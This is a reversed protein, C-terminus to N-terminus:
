GSRTWKALAGLAGQSVAVGILIIALAAPAEAPLTEGLFVVGFVMGWVPVQYNVLVFFTPGRRRIVTLLLFMALATPVVGLWIVALAARWTWPASLPAEFMLAIPTLLTAACILALAGFTLPHAAPARKALVSGSAYCAAAGLCALQALLAFGGAGLGELVDLGILLAVGFLGILFGAAKVGSLRESAVFRAAIPLTILPTTAMFIAALSSDIHGKQAWSLLTFPLANSLVASGLAFLWLRKGTRAFPQPPPGAAWFALPTLVVAGIILRAAAVSIPPLDRVAVTTLTFSGGWIVGLLALLAWSLWDVRRIHAQM